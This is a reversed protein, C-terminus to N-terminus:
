RKLICKCCPCKLHYSCPNESDFNSIFHSWFFQKLNHKITSTSLTLDTSPLNNWLRSIRNFYFHHHKSSSAFKHKITTKDSSRYLSLSMSVSTLVIQYTKLLHWLFYLMWYSWIICWHFYLNLQILREKYSLNSNYGVIFKTLQGANFRKLHFLLISLSCQSGYNPAM